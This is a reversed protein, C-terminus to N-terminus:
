KGNKNELKELLKTISERLFTQAQGMMAHDPHTKPLNILSDTLSVKILSLEDERLSVIVRKTKM